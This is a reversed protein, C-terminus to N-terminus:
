NYIKKNNSNSSTNIAFKELVKSVKPLRIYIANSTDIVENTRADSARECLCTSILRTFSKKTYDNNIIFEVQQKESENKYPVMVIMPVSKENVYLDWYKDFFSIVTTVEETSFDNDQMFTMLNNFAADHDREVYANKKYKGEPNFAFGQGTFQAFWEPSNTAYYYSNAATDAYSVNGDCNLKQWGLIMTEGYKMFISNIMNLERQDEFKCNPDLGNAVISELFCGNFAHVIYRTNLLRKAITERLVKCVVENELDATDLKYDELIDNFIYDYIAQRIEVKRGFTNGYKALVKEYEFVVNEMFRNFNELSIDKDGFVRWYDIGIGICDSVYDLAQKTDVDCYKGLPSIIELFEDSEFYSTINM